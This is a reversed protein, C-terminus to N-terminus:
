SFKENRDTTYEDFFTEISKYSVFSTVTSFCIFYYILLFSIILIFITKKKKVFSNLYCTNGLNTLGTCGTGSKEGLDYVPSSRKRTNKSFINQNLDSIGVYKIIYKIINGYFESSGQHIKMLTKITDSLDIIMSEAKEFPLPNSQLFFPLNNEDFIPPRDRGMLSFLYLALQGQTIENEKNEVTNKKENTSNKKLYNLELDMYEFLFPFLPVFSFFVSTELGFLIHQVVKLAGSRLPAVYMQLISLLLANSTVQYLNDSKKTKKMNDHINIFWKSIKENKSPFTSLRGLFNVLNENSAVETIFNSSEEIM